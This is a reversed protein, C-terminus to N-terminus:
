LNIREVFSSAVKGKEDFLAALLDLTTQHNGNVQRLNLRTADVHLNVLAGSGGNSVDLFDVAMEVPIERLPFLSGLGERMEMEKELKAKQAINEHSKEKRKDSPKEALNANKDSPAFYGKRTRVKLEPRGVIRVEIKHFRGDRYSTAPEYALV